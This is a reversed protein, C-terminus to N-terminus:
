RNRELEQDRNHLLNDIMTQRQRCHVCDGCGGPVDRYCTHTHTVIEPDLYYGRRLIETRTLHSFPCLITMPHHYAVNVLTQMKLVAVMTADPFPADEPEQHYGLYLENGGITTCYTAALLVFICNRGELKNSGATGGKLIACDAILSLGLPVVTVPVDLKRCWYRVAELEQELALQGYDFFIAVLSKREHKLHLLLSTSDLGGGLLIVGITM